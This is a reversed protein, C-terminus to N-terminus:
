KELFFELYSKCLESFALDNLLEVKTIMCNPGKPLILVLKTNTNKKDKSLADLLLNHPIPEESYLAYNKRLLTHMREYDQSLILDLRMAIYNAM